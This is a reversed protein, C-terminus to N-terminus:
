IKPDLPRVLVLALVKTSPKDIECDYTLLLARTYDCPAAVLLPAGSPPPKTPSLPAGAEFGERKGPLSAKKLLVPDDKSFVLPVREFVDGQCLEATVPRYFPPDDM